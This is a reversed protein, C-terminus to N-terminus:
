KKLLGVSKFCQMVKEPIYEMYGNNKMNYKDKTFTSLIDWLESANHHVVLQDKLIEFHAKDTATSSAIVPKECIAFEAIALGFTEGDQRGYIMADCSNIFKRKEYVNATSPIHIVNPLDVFRPTHMFLFYITPHERAFKSVTEIVYPLTFTELGGHRGWVIADTPIKLSDRLNENHQPLNVMYPIVPYDTHCLHNLYQSIPTYTLLPYLEPSPVHNTTFVCHHISKISSVYGYPESEVDGHSQMYFVDIDNQVVFDDLDSFRPVEMVDFRKSFKEYCQNYDVPKYHYSQSPHTYFSKPLALIMSKNGLISENYDAYDYISVETGRLSFHRIFFGVTVQKKESSLSHDISHVYDIGDILRLLTQWTEVTKRPTQRKVRIIPVSRDFELPADGELWLMSQHHFQPVLPRLLHSLVADDNHLCLDDRTLSIKKLCQIIDPSMVICTGSLFTAPVQSYKPWEPLIHKFVHASVLKTPRLCSLHSHLQYFNLFTSVNVRVVFDYASEDIKHLTQLFKLIMHPNYRPNFQDVRNHSQPPFFLDVNKDIEYKQSPKPYNDFVFYHPINYKQLQQKRMQILPIYASNDFSAMVLILIRSYDFSPPKLFNVFSGESFSLEQDNSLTLKLQKKQNVLPDKGFFMNSIVFQSANRIFEIVDMGGYTARVVMRNWNTPTDFLKQFNPPLYANDKLHIHSMPCQKEDFIWKTERMSKLLHDTGHYANSNYEQHSFHQIKYRIAELDSFYSLHWGAKRIVHAGTTNRLYQPQSKTITNYFDNSVLRSRVWPEVFRSNLNFYYMDQELVNDQHWSAMEGFIRPDTIEDVDSVFIWNVCKEKKIEEVGRHLANRQWHERMFANESATQNLKDEPMDDVLIYIIKHQFKEFMQRNKNFYLPKPTNDFNVTSECLVFYDIYDDLLTMRYLLMNLENHFLFLDLIVPKEKKRGNFESSGSLKSISQHM